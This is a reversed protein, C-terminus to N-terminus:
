LSTKYIVAFTDSWSIMRNVHWKDPIHKARVAASCTLRTLSSDQRSGEWFLSLPKQHHEFHNMTIESLNRMKIVLDRM